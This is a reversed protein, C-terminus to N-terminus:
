VQNGELKLPLCLYYIIIWVGGCELRHNVCFDSTLQIVYCIFSSKKSQPYCSLVNFRLPSWTQTTIMLSTDTTHSFEVNLNMERFSLVKLSNLKKFNWKLNGLSVAFLHQDVKSRDLHYLCLCCELGTQLWFGALRMTQSSVICSM